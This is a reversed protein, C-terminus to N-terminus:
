LLSVIDAASKNEYVFSFVKDAVAKPIGGFACLDDYRRRFEEDSLPNEPEGKPFDVHASFVGEPTKVEVTAAQKAPFIASFAEDEEVTIKKTLDLIDKDAVTKESFEELGAKGYMFGAAAAYPISMKASMPGFIERHDHGSVALRYTRIRVSEIDRYSVTKRLAIAGEVAPHTYRCSAYPKTYSKQIAWTGNKLVPELVRDEEGTMMFLFGRGGLPDENVAFGGRAMQLATWALLAAKAANYPKLESKDDLAKLMGSSALCAAGFAAFREKKDFGLLHSAAVAAGVVGCTATAHFGRMKHTPQISIALTFSVEYGIVACRLVEEISKETRQALPLLVSFIPTGLHIIGANTGDDMDLAHGALGNLFIAEALATDRGTGIARAAGTEAAFVSMKEIRERNVGAGACAVALYDLLSRRARAMVEQPIQKKALEEIRDFFVMSRNM